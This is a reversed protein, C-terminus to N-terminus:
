SNKKLLNEHDKLYKIYAFLGIFKVLRKDQNPISSISELKDLGRIKKRNQDFYQYITKFNANKRIKSLIEM